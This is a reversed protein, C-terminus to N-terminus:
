IRSLQLEAKRGGLGLLRVSGDAIEADALRRVDFGKSEAETLAEVEAILFVALPAELKEQLDLAEVDYFGGMLAIRGRKGIEADIYIPLKIAQALVIGAQLSSGSPVVAADLEPNEYSWILIRSALGLLLPDPPPNGTTLPGELRGGTVRTNELSELLLKWTWEDLAKTWLPNHFCSRRGEHCVNGFPVGLYELADMDCDAMVELVRVKNGSTEGKMWLERRSRSYFHAYGTTLTRELADRNAYGLMLTEGSTADRVVVPVLGDQKEFDIDELVLAGM